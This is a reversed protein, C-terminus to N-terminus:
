KCDDVLTNEVVQIDCQVVTKDTFGYIDSSFTGQTGPIILQLKVYQKETKETIAVDWIVEQIKARLAEIAKLGQYAKGKQEEIYQAIYDFPFRSDTIFLIVM